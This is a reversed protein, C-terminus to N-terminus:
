YLQCAGLLLLHAPVRLINLLFNARRPSGSDITVNLYMWSTVLTLRKVNLLRLDASVSLNLSIFEFHKLIIYFHSMMTLCYGDIEYVHM